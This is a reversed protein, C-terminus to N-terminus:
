QGAMRGGVTKGRMQFLKLPHKCKMMATTATTPPTYEDIDDNKSKPDGADLTYLMINCVVVCLLVSCVSREYFVSHRITCAAAM